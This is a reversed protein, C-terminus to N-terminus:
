HWVHKCHTKILDVRVGEKGTGGLNNGGIERVVVECRHGEEGGWWWKSLGTLAPPLHMLVPGEVPAHCSIRSMHGFFVSEKERCGDLVM